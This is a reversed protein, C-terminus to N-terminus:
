IVIKNKGEIYILVLRKLGIKNYDSLIKEQHTLSGPQWSKSIQKDKEHVKVYAKFMKMIVYFFIIIIWMIYFVVELCVFM